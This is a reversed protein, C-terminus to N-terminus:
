KLIQEAMDKYVECDDIEFTKEIIEMLKTQILMEEQHTMEM